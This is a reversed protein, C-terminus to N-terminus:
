EVMARVYDTGVNAREVQWDAPNAPDYTLVTRQFAQIVVRRGKADGKDVVGDIAETMPLGIDHLRGAPFLDTRNLYDWFLKPVTHGAEPRLEAQYPVFASGDANLAVGGRFDAPPALRQEPRSYNYLDAYTVSSVEGGVPMPTKAAQLGDVLLGYMFRWNTDSVEASHDEIRGKEFYQGPYGNVSLPPGIPAGLVRWGDHSNYYAQFRPDLRFGLRFLSVGTAGGAYLVRSRSALAVAGRDALESGRESWSLGGDYSAFTGGHQRVGIVSSDGPMSAILTNGDTPDVILSSIASGGSPLGASLDQWSAGGDGTKFLRKYGMLVWGVYVVDSNAPDVAIASPAMLAVAGGTELNRWAGGGDDSRKVLGGHYVGIGAYVVAPRSPALVLSSVYPVSLGAGVGPRLLRNWSAGGDTSKVVEYNNELTLGAYIVSSNLPDIAIASPSEGPRMPSWSKGRDTSRYIGAGGRKRNGAAYLISPDRPAIALAASVKEPSALSWNAGGDSTAWLGSAGTVYVVRNNTPDVALAFVRETLGSQEWVGHAAARKARVGEVSLIVVALILLSRILTFM